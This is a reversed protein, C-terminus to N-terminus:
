PFRLLLPGRTRAPPDATRVWVPRGAPLDGIDISRAPNPALLAVTRGAAEAGARNVELTLGTLVPASWDALVEDLATTVDDEDPNSTLFRAVGGGREALENALAANPAADICLVSVRRRNAKTSESDALRLIRGSDSVEADTLILVHRSPTDTTRSRDLAQELAVGLETGGNDRNSKLFAVADRVADPTARRTREAFWKTTNHFLGLAFSDHENLGALFREVAWDAAERKAGEMSGSHDVLLVV